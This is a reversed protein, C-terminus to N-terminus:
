YSFFDGPKKEKKNKASPRLGAHVTLQGFLLRIDWLMCLPCELSFSLAFSAVFITTAFPSVRDLLVPHFFPESLRNFKAFGPFFFFSYERNVFDKCGTNGHGELAESLFFSCKASTLPYPPHFTWRLWYHCRRTPQVRTGAFHALPTFPHVFIFTPPCSSCLSM